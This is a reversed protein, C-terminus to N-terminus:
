EVEEAAAAAPEANAPAAELERVRADRAHQARELAAAAARSRAEIDVLRARAAELDTRARMAEVRREAARVASQAIAEAREAASMQGRARRRDVEILARRAHHLLDLADAREAPEELAGIRSRLSAESPSSPSPAETAGSTEQATIPADEQAVDTAEPETAEDPASVPEQALVAACPASALLAFTLVIGLRRTTERM